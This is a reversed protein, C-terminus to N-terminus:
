LEDPDVYGGEEEEEEQGEDDIGEEEGGVEIRVIGAAFVYVIFAVVGGVAVMIRKNRKTRAQAEAAESAADKVANEAKKEQQFIADWVMSTVSPRSTITKICSPLFTRRAEHTWAAVREKKRLESALWPNPLEPYLHTSLVGFLLADVSSPQDGFVFPTPRLPNQLIITNITAYFESALNTLAIRKRLNEPSLKPQPATLSPFTNQRPNPNREEKVEDTFNSGLADNFGLKEVRAQAATRLRFPEVYSAPFPLPASLVHRTVRSYNPYDAYLSLLSLDIGRSTILASYAESLALQKPELDSDADYSARKLYAIIETYGSIRIDEPFVRLSPLPSVSSEVVTFEGPAVIQLYALAAISLPDTSPLSFAPSTHIHLEFKKSM